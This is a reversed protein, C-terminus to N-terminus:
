SFEAEEALFIRSILNKQIHARTLARKLSSANQLKTDINLHSLQSLTDNIM